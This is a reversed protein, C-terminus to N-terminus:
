LEARAVVSKGRQRSFGPTALAARVQMQGSVSSCYLNTVVSDCYTSHVVALSNLIHLVLSMFLPSMAWFVVIQVVRQSAGTDSDYNAGTRVNTHLHFTDRGLVVYYLSVITCCVLMPISRTGLRSNTSEQEATQL